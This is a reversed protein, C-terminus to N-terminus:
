KSLERVQGALAEIQRDYPDAPTAKPDEPKAYQPTPKRWEIMPIRYVWLGSAEELEPGEVDEIVVSRIRRAELQAAWIDMALGRGPQGRKPEAVVDEWAAWDDWHQDTFLRIELTFRALKVGRFIVFGGALGMGAQEDWKRPKKLGTIRAVGPSKRGALLVFDSPIRGDFAM